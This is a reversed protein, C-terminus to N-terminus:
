TSPLSSSRFTELCPLSKSLHFYQSFHSESHSEGTSQILALLSEPLATLVGTCATAETSNPICLLSPPLPHLGPIPLCIGFPKTFPPSCCGPQSRPLPPGLRHHLSCLLVLLHQLSTLLKTPSMHPCGLSTSVLLTLPRSSLSHHPSTTIQLAALPPSLSFPCTQPWLLVPMEM